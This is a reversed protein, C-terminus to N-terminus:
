RGWNGRGGIRVAAHMLWALPKSMGEELLAAHFIKDAERKTFRHTLHTYIFDHVVAPRRAQVHDRPVIRWALRPVSALDTRYGVPVIVLRKGATRYQLPTVVKWLESGPVHRLELDSEFPM